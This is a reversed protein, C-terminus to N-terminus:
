QERNIIILIVGASGLGVL